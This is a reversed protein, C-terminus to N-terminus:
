TAGHAGRGGCALAATVQEIMLENQASMLWCIARDIATIPM